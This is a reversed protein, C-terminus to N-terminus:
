TMDVKEIYYVEDEHDSIWEERLADLNKGLIQLATLKADGWKRSDPTRFLPLAVEHPIFDGGSAYIYAGELAELMQGNTIYRMEADDEDFTFEGLAARVELKKTVAKRMNTFRQTSGPVVRRVRVPKPDLPVGDYGVEIGEYFETFKKWGGWCVFREAVWNKHSYRGCCIAPAIEGMKQWTTVTNWGRTYLQYRDRYIRVTVTRHHKFLYADDREDYMLVTNHSLKKWGNSKRRRAYQAEAQHYSMAM